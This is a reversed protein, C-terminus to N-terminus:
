EYDGSARSIVARLVDWLSAFRKDCALASDADALSSFMSEAEVLAELLEPAAAILSINAEIQEPPLVGHGKASAVHTNRGAYIVPYRGDSEINRHWPGPTHNSM